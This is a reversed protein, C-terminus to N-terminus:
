TIDASTGPYGDKNAVDLPLLLCTAGTLIIGIIVVFKPFYADNHDDPHQYYVLLYVAVVILLLFVVATSIALFIDAM